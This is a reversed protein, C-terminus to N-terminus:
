QQNTGRSSEREDQESPFHAATPLLERADKCGQYKWFCSYNFATYRHRDAASAKPTMRIQFWYYRFKETTYWGAQVPERTPVRGWHEQEELEVQSPHISGLLGIGFGTDKRVVLSDKVTFSVSFGVGSSGRWWRPLYANDIRKDWECYSRDCAGYPEASIKRALREADEFTSRGLQLTELESFLYRAHLSPYLLYAGCLLMALAVLITILWGIPVNRFRSTKPHAM